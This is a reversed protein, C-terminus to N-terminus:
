CFRKRFPRLAVVRKAVIGRKVAVMRATASNARRIQFRERLRCWHRLGGFHRPRHIVRDIPTLDSQSSEAMASSDSPPMEPSPMEPMQASPPPPVPQIEIQIAEVGLVALIGASRAWAEVQERLEDTNANSKTLRLALSKARLDSRQPREFFETLGSDDWNDLFLDRAEKLPQRINIQYQDDKTVDVGLVQSLQQEELMARIDNRYKDIQKDTLEEQEPKLRLTIGKITVDEKRLEEFYKADEYKPWAAKLKEFARAVDDEPNPQTRETGTAPQPQGQDIQANEEQGLGSLVFCFLSASYVLSFLFTGVNSAM